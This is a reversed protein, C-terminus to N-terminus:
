YLFFLSIPSGGLHCRTAPTKCTNEDCLVGILLWGSVVEEIVSGRVTSGDVSALALDLPSPPNPPELGGVEVPDKSTAHITGGISRM